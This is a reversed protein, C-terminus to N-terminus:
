NSGSVIVAHDVHIIVHDLEAADPMPVGLTRLMESVGNEPLYIEVTKEATESSAAATTSNESM